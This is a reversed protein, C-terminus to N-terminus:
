KNIIKLKIVPIYEEIRGGPFVGLLKPTIKENSLMNFIVAEAAEGVFKIDLDFNEDDKSEFM